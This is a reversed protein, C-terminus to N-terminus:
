CNADACERIAVGAWGAAGPGRAGVGAGHYGAGVGGGPRGITDIFLSAVGGSQPMEGDILAYGYVLDQGDIVPDMLEVVVLQNEHQEAEFVSLTANPPNSKFSDDGQDWNAVFRELNAHGAIRNPRDTFYLTQPSVNILRLTNEEPNAQFAQATQVFLLELMTEEAAAKTTHSGAFLVLSVLGSKLAMTPTTMKIKFM